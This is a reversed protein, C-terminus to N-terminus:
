AFRRGSRGTHGASSARADIVYRPAPRDYAPSDPPPPPSVVLPHLARELAGELYVPTLGTAWYEADTRNPQTTERSSRLVRGRTVPVFEIWAEWLGDDAPAGCARARYVVGDPTSLLSQYEILVEAM